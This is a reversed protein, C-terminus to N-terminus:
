TASVLIMTKTVSLQMKSMQGSGQGGGASQGHGAMIKVQRRIVV